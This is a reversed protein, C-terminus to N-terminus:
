VLLNQVATETASYKEKLHSVLDQLETIKKQMRNTRQRVLKLLKNKKEITEKAKALAGNGDEAFDGVYHTRKKRTREPPGSESIDTVAQESISNDVM